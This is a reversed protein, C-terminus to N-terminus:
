LWPSSDGAACGPICKDEPCVDSRPAGPVAEGALPITRVSGGYDVMLDTLKRFQPHQSCKMICQKCYM